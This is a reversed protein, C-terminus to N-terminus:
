HRRRNWKPKLTRIFMREQKEVMRKSYDPYSIIELTDTADAFRLYDHRGVLRRFGRMSMGVYLCVDARRLIYVIPGGLAGIPLTTRM